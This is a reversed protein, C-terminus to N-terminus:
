PFVPERTYGYHASIIYEVGELGSIKEIDRRQQEDSKNYVSNFLGIKNEKLSMNDGVFLYKRNILYCVSDEAHGPTSIVQVEAGAVSFIEGDSVVRGANKANVGYIEAKEFVKLGATHDGHTHTLLVAAVNESAIGLSELGERVSKSNLGADVAIYKGGSEFLFVNVFETKIAYVGSLFESTEIASMAKQENGM